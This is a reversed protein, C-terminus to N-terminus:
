SPERRVGVRGSDVGVPQHQQVAGGGHRGGGGLHKDRRGAVVRAGAVRAAAVGQHVGGLRGVVVRDGEQQRATAVRRRVGGASSRQHGGARAGVDADDLSQKRVGVRAGPGGSGDHVAAAARGSVVGGRVRSRGVDPREGRAAKVEVGGVGVTDRREEACAGDSVRAREHRQQSAAGGGVDGVAPLAARQVVARARRRGAQAAYLHRQPTADVRVGGVVRSARRQHQRALRACARVDRHDRAQQVPLRVRHSLVVLSPVGEVVARVVALVHLRRHPLSSTRWGDGDSTTAGRHCGIRLPFAGHRWWVTLNPPAAPATASFTPDTM